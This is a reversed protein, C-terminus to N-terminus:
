AGLRKCGNKEMHAWEAEAKEITAMSFFKKRFTGKPTPNGLYVEFMDGVKKYIFATGVLTIYTVTTTKAM